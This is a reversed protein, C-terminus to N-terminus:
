AKKARWFSSIGFWLFLLSFGGALLAKEPGAKGAEYKHYENWAASAGFTSFALFFLGTIQLWLLRAVRLFSSATTLAAQWAAQGIRTGRVQRAAIRGLIGIKRTTSLSVM